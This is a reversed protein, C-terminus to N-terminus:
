NKKKHKATKNSKSTVTKTVSAEEKTKTTEEEKDEERKEAVAPESPLHNLYPLIFVTMHLFARLRWYAQSNVPTSVSLHVVLFIPPVTSFGLWPSDKTLKLFHPVFAVCLAAMTVKDLLDTLEDAPDLVLPPVSGTCMAVLWAFRRHGFLEKDLFFLPFAALLSFAIVLKEIWCFIM